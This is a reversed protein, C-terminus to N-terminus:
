SLSRILSIQAIIMGLCKTIHINRYTKRNKKIKEEIHMSITTIVVFQVNYRCM